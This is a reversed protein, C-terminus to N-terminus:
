INKLCFHFVLLFQNKKEYMYLNNKYKYLFMASLYYFFLYLRIHKDKIIYTIYLIYINLIIYLM